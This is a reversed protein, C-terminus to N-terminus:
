ELLCHLSPLCQHLSHFQYLNLFSLNYWLDAIFGMISFLIQSVEYTPQRTAVNQLTCANGNTVGGLCKTDAIGDDNGDVVIYETTDVTGSCDICQMPFYSAKYDVSSEISGAWANTRPGTVQVDVLGTYCEDLVVQGQAYNFNPTTVEIYGVGNNVFVDLFGNDYQGNGTTILICTTEPIVPSISPSSSTKLPTPNSTVPSSSPARTPNSSIPSVSPVITPTSTSPSSTPKSTTPQFTSSFIM